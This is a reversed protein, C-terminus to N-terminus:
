IRDYYSNGVKITRYNIMEIIADEWIISDPDEPYVLSASHIYQQCEWKNGDLYKINRFKGGDVLNGNIDKFSGAGYTDFELGTIHVNLGDARNMWYGVLSTATIKGESEKTLDEQVACSCILILLLAILFLKKMTNVQNILM